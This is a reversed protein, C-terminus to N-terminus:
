VGRRRSARCASLVEASPIHGFIPCIGISKLNVVNRHWAIHLRPTIRAMRGSLEADRGFHAFTAPPDSYAVGTREAPFRRSPM